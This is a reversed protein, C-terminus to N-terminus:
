NKLSLHTNRVTYKNWDGGFLGTLTRAIQAYSEGHNKLLLILRAQEPTAKRKRGAVRENHPRISAATLLGRIEAIEADKRKITEELSATYKASTEAVEEANRLASEQEDVSKGQSALRAELTEIKETLRKNELKPSEIEKNGFLRLCM